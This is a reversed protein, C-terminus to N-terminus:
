KLINEGDHAFIGYGIRMCGGRKFRDALAAQLRTKRPLEDFAEADKGFIRWFNLNKPDDRTAFVTYHSAFTAIGGGPVESLLEPDLMWTFCAIPIIDDSFLPRFFRYARRYADLCEEETLRGSSPIHAKVVLDGRKVSLHKGEYGDLDFPVAHFQLRGLAFVTRRLIKDHWSLSVTGHVGYRRHCERSKWVLDRASDYFIEEGYAAIYDSKERYFALLAFAADRTYPSLGREEALDAVASVADAASLDPTMLYRSVADDLSPGMAAVASLLAETCEPDLGVRSCFERM